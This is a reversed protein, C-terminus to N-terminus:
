LYFAFIMTKCFHWSHGQVKGYYVCFWSPDHGWWSLDHFIHFSQSLLSELYYASINQKTKKVFTVRTVTVMSRTFLFDIPTKKTRAMKDHHGYVQSTWM